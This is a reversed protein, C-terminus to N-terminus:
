ILDIFFQILYMLEPDLRHATALIDERRYKVDVTGAYHTLVYMVCMCKHKQTNHFNAALVNNSFCKVVKLSLSGAEAPKTPM